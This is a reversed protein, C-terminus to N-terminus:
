QNNYKNVSSKEADAHSGLNLLQRASSLLSEDGEHAARSLSYTPDHILKHTLNRSLFEIAEQAPKGQALMRMAQATVESQIAAAKDRYEKVLHIADQSKLWGMFNHVQADVLEEAQEAAKRRSQLNEAIVDHLNDVTYLYIDPLNGTEPEIDRPVAIDVLLMPRHKRKKLAREVAGKGLIPLPSATSSIVIDAQDLVTNIDILSLPQANFQDALQEARSLTRNAIMLHAINQSQLHRAALEITEGAGILLATQQNLQGFIQKALSVAAFAVSVASSGIETETRIKKATQFTTQYLRNLHRGLSDSESAQQYASKLQGLIQPEGLVMSDLGCAVRLLHRVAEGDNHNYLYPKIETASLNHQESLWDPIQIISNNQEHWCTIETRNCTSLVAAEQVGPLKLLSRLTAPISKADFVMRERVEVPATTHNIGVTLISM